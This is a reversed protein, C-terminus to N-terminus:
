DSPPTEVPDASNGLLTVPIFLTLDDNWHVELM